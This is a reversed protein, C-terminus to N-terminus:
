INKLPPSVFIVDIKEDAFRLTLVGKEFGKDEQKRQINVILQGKESIQNDVSILKMKDSEFSYDLLQPKTNGNKKITLSYQNKDPKVYVYKPFVDIKLPQKESAAGAAALEAAKAAMSRLKEDTAPVPLQITSNPETTTPIATQVSAKTAKYKSGIREDSVITGEPFEFDLL